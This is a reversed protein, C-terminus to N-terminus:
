CAHSPEPPKPGAPVRCLYPWSFALWGFAAALWAGSSVGLLVFYRGGFFTAALRLGLSVAIGAGILPFIWSPRELLEGRGAHNLVVMTSVCFIMLSFGGLFVLHLLMVHFKPFFPILWYGLAIMWYSASLLRVFLGPGRVVKANLSRTWLFMWTVVSARLWYWRVDGQFGELFFGGTLVAASFAHISIKKRLGAKFRAPDAPALKHVGMLRPGLFCGVGLVLALMFGQQQMARGVPMWEPGLRGALVLIIIAAGAIGLFVAPPIWVFEVPPHEVSRKRFRAFIFRALFTLWLAYLSESVIWRGFFLAATLGLLLALSGAIEWTRASWTGSFRPVATMLFGSVFCTLYLQTQINAHLFGSYGKMWGLAYFLWHGVGGLALLIGLPFFLRYPENRVEKLM